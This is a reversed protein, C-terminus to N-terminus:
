LYKEIAGLLREMDEPTNYAQVSVRILAEDNWQPLPVEIKFEPWLVERLKEATAQPLRAVFMQSFWDISDPCVPELGTMENIRDRTQSALAHCAARVAPWNHERQFRVAAGVSIYAAPDMTGTWTFNDLFKSQETHPGSWGHSVVLPELMDDRGPAAYLFASGKPATLWKHSQVM